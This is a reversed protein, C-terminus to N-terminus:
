PSECRHIEIVVCCALGNKESAAHELNPVSVQVVSDNTGEVTLYADRRTLGQIILATRNTASRM